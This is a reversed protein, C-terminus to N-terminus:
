VNKHCDDMNLGELEDSGMQGHQHWKQVCKELIGKMFSPALQEVAQKFDVVLVGGSYLCCAVHIASQCLISADESEHNKELFEIFETLTELFERNHSSVAEPEALFMNLAERLLPSEGKFVVNDLFQSNHCLATASSHSVQLSGQVMGKSHEQSHCSVSNGAVIKSANIILALFIVLKM